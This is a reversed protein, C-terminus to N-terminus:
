VYDNLGLMHNAYRDLNGDLYKRSGWQFDIPSGSIDMTIQSSQISWKKRTTSSVMLRPARWVKEVLQDFKILRRNNIDGAGVM